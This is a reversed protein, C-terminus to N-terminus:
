RSDALGDDNLFYYYISAPAQTSCSRSVHRRCARTVTRWGSRRDIRVVTGRQEAPLYEAVLARTSPRLPGRHRAFYTDPAVDEFPPSRSSASRRVAVGGGPSSVVQLEDGQSFAASKSASALSPSRTRATTRRRRQLRAILARRHLAARDMGRGDDVVEYAAVNNRRTDKIPRGGRKRVRVWVSGAGEARAAEVAQVSNDVIDFQNRFSAYLGIRSLGASFEAFSQYDLPSTQTEM